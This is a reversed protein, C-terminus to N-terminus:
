DLVLFREKQSSDLYSQVGGTWLNQLEKILLEMETAHTEFYIGHAGVGLGKKTIERFFAFADNGPAFLALHPEFQRVNEDVLNPKDTPIYPPNSVVLDINLPLADKLVDLEIFDVEVENIAANETALEVADASVDVGIVEWNPRLKKLAISICGSGCGVDVVRRHANGHQKLVLDVLEETEPRPILVRKDVKFELGCFSTTGFVYQVPMGAELRLLTREWVDLFQPNVTDENKLYVEARNWDHIEKVCWHYLAQLEGQPYLSSLRRYFSQRLESHIM